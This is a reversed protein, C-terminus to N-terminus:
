SFTYNCFDYRCKVRHPKRVIFGMCVIKVGYCDGTIGKNLFGTGDRFRIARGRLSNKFDGM